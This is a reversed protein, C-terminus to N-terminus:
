TRLEKIRNNQILNGSYLSLLVLNKSYNLEHLEFSDTLFLLIKFDVLTLLTAERLIVHINIGQTLYSNVTNQSNQCYIPM